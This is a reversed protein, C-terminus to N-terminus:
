FRDSCIRTERHRRITKDGPGSGISLNKPRAMRIARPPMRKKPGIPRIIRCGSGATMGKPRYSGGRYASLKLVFGTDPKVIATHRPPRPPRPALPPFPPVPGTRRRGADDKWRGRM